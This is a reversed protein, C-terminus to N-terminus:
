ALAGVEEGKTMTPTTITEQEVMETAMEPMEMEEMETQTEGMEMPTGTALIQMVGMGTGTEEMGVVIEELLLQRLPAQQLLLVLRRRVMGLRLPPLM